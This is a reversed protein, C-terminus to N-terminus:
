QPIENLRASGKSNEVEVSRSRPRKVVAQSRISRISAHLHPLSRGHRDRRDSVLLSSFVSTHWDTSPKRVAAGAQLSHLVSPNALLLVIVFVHIVIVHFFCTTVGSRRSVRM